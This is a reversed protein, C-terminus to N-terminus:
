MLVIHLMALYRHWTRVASKRFGICHQVIGFVALIAQWSECAPLRSNGKKM